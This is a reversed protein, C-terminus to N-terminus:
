APGGARVVRYCCGHPLHVAQVGPLHENIYQTLTIMGPEESTGHNVRLVHHGADAARQLHSWYATGDDCVISVDCGMGEFTPIDCLCGTGIGVRSVRRRGEGILQVCSEGLGRVRRAIRGAFAGLTVPAIDYRHQYEDESIAAPKEGLGLFRAWAWPIGAEPMHDWVDHIRLVVLGSNDILAKKERTTPSAEWKEHEQRHVYFTPEHTVLMDAHRAIAARVAALSSIWTVLASRVEKEPDGIIIRDVTNARDVWDARDLFANLIDIAKM